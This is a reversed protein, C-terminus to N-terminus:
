KLTELKFVSPQYNKDAAKKFWKAAQVKKGQGLFWEGLTHAVEPAEAQQAYLKVLRRELNKRSRRTKAGEFRLLLSILTDEDADPTERELLRTETRLWDLKKEDKCLDYLARQGKAGSNFLQKFREKAGIPDDILWHARLMSLQVEQDRRDQTALEELYSQLDDLDPNPTNLLARVENLPRDPNYYHLAGAGGAVGIVMVSLISKILNRKRISKHVAEIREKISNIDHAKVQHEKLDAPKLQSAHNYHELAVHYHKQQHKIQAIYYHAAKSNKPNIQLAREFITIAYALCSEKKKKDARSTFKDAQHFFEEGLALHDFPNKPNKKLWAEYRRFAAGFDKDVVTVFKELQATTSASKNLPKKVNKRITMTLKANKTKPNYDDSSFKPSWYVGERGIFGWIITTMKQKLSATLASKKVCDEM